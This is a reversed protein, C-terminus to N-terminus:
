FKQGGATSLLSSFTEVHEVTAQCPPMAKVQEITDYTPLPTDAPKKADTSAKGTPKEAACGSLFSTTALASALALSALDLTKNM